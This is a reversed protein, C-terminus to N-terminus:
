GIATAPSPSAPLARDMTLEDGHGLPYPERDGTEVFGLRAYATRARPNDEHVQLRLRCAGQSAAHAALGDLLRALLGQGRASPRLYVAAVWWVGELEPDPFTLATGVVAGGLLVFLQCSGDGGESGRLARYRWADDDKALADAYTELYALPTDQLAELRLAKLAPWDGPVVRRVTASM